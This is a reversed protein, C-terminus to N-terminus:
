NSRSNWQVNKLTFAFKSIQDATLGEWNENVFNDIKTMNRKSGHFSEVRGTVLDRFTVMQDRKQYWLMKNMKADM